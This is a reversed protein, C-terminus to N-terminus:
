DIPFKLLEWQGGQLFDKVTRCIKDIEKLINSTDCYEKKEHLM